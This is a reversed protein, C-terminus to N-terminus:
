YKKKKKKDKKKKKHKRNEVTAPNAPKHSVVDTFSPALYPNKFDPNLKRMTM